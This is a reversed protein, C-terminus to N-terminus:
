RMELLSADILSMLRSMVGAVPTRRHCHEAFGMDGPSKVACCACSSKWARATKM